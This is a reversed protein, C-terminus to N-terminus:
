CDGAVANEIDEKLSDVTIHKWMVIKKLQAFTDLSRPSYTKGVNPIM